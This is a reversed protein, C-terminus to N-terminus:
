AMKQAEITGDKMTGDPNFFMDPDIVLIEKLINKGDKKGARGLPGPKIM